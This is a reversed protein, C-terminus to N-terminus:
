EATPGASSNYLILARGDDKSLRELELPGTREPQEGTAGDLPTGGDPKPPSSEADNGSM